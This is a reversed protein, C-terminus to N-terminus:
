FHHIPAKCLPKRAWGTDCQPSRPSDTTGWAHSRANSYSPQTPTLPHGEGACKLPNRVTRSGTPSYTRIDSPGCGAQERRCVPSTVSSRGASSRRCRRSAAPPYRIYSRGCRGLFQQRNHQFVPTYALDGLLTWTLIPFSIRIKEMGQAPGTRCRECSSGQAGTLLIETISIPLDLWVTASQMEKKNFLSFMAIYPRSTETHLLNLLLSLDNHTSVCITYLNIYM